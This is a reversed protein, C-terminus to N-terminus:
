LNFGHNYDGFFNKKHKKLFKYNTDKIYQKFSQLNNNIYVKIQIGDIMYDDILIQKNEM